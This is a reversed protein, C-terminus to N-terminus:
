FDYGLWYIWRGSVEGEQGVKCYGVRCNALM